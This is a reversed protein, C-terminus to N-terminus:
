DFLTRQQCARKVRRLLEAQRKDAGHREIREIMEASAFHTLREAWLQRTVERSRRPRGVPDTM